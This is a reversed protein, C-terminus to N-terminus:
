TTKTQHAALNKAIIKIGILTSGITLPAAWWLYLVPEGSDWAIWTATGSISTAYVFAHLKHHRVLKQLKTLLKQFWTKPKPPKPPYQTPQTPNM